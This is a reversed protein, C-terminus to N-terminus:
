RDRHREEGSRPIRPAATIGASALEAVLGARLEHKKIKTGSLPWDTVFRIYRPVKFTAIRGRCFTIVDEATLSADATLEIFAAPVEDYRVDPVGVVQAVRVGGLGCLFDEVELAAVNEGGVKLMDKLRGCYRYLGQEDVALLDQTHFFGDDDFGAGQSPESEGYYGQFVSYGRVCLEGPLGAPRRAGTEPDVIKVEMGEIVRGLTHFRVDAGDRPDGMILTSSLETSGYSAVQSASPLARAFQAMRQPTGICQIVRVRSLDAAAFSPHEVIQLWLLDFAPNVAVCGEREIMEISAGPEFFGAHCFTGGVSMTGLMPGIGATHFLPLPDWLAEGERLGYRSTALVNTTRTLAEHTLLCGKPMATTGSTYMIMAVDRDRVASQRRKVEATEVDFGAEDFQARSLFGDREAAFSIVHRPASGPAVARLVDAVLSPYDTGLPDSSVLLATLDAHGIVYGAETGKFRGNIPVSIAGLKATAFLALVFELCNPMLIGVRDGSRIGLGVLGGAFRDSAQSLEAYSLRLEPMVLATLDPTREASRDVVDGIRSAGAWGTV